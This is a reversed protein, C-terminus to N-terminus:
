RWRKARPAPSQGSEQQGSHNTTRGTARSATLSKASNLEEIVDWNTVAFKKGDSGTKTMIIYRPHRYRKVAMVLRLWPVGSGSFDKDKEFKDMGILERLGPAVYPVKGDKDNKVEALIKSQAAKIRGNYVERLLFATLRARGGPTAQAGGEMDKQGLDFFQDRKASSPEVMSIWDAREKALDRRAAASLGGGWSRLLSNLDNEAVTLYESIEDSRPDFLILALLGVVIIGVAIPWYALFGDWTFDFYSGYSRRHSHWRDFVFVSAPLMAFFAFAKIWQLLSNM